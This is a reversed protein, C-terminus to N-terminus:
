EGQCTTTRGIRKVSLIDQYKQLKKSDNEPYNHIKTDIAIQPLFMRPRMYNRTVLVDMKFFTVNEIVM